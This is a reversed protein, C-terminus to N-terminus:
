QGLGSLRAHLTLIDGIFSPHHTPTPIFLSPAEAKNPIIKPDMM